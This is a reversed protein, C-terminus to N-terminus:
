SASSRIQRVFSDVANLLQRTEDGLTESLRTISDASHDTENWADVMASGGTASAEASEAAKRASRAIERTASDQEEVAAAIAATVNDLDFIASAIAEIAHGARDTTERIALVKEGVEDTARATQGALNKVESAVVAFGKGAEGARAAEITANLALLQTHEAIESITRLVGEISNAAETLGLVISQTERAQAAASRTEASSRAVQTAIETIAASLQGAAAAVAGASGVADDGARHVAHSQDSGARVLGRLGEADAKATAAADAVRRALNGVQEELQSAVQLLVRERERRAAEASAEREAAARAVEAHAAQADDLAAQSQHLAKSLTAAIWGMLAGEFAAFWPYVLLNLFSGGDVGLQKPLLLGGVFFGAALTASGLAVQRWSCTGTIAALLVYSYIQMGTQWSTQGHFTVVAVLGAMPLLMALLWRTFRPPLLRWAVLGFLTLVSSSLPGFWGVSGSVIWPAAVLVPIQIALLGLSLLTTTNRIREIPTM